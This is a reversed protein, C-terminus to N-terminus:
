PTGPGKLQPLHLQGQTSDPASGRILLTFQDNFNNGTNLGHNQQGTFCYFKTKQLYAERSSLVKLIGEFSLTPFVNQDRKSYLFTLQGSRM